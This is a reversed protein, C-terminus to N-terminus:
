IDEDALSQGLAYRTQEHDFGRYQMFRIQKSKEKADRAPTGFKKRWVENAIEYWDIEDTCIASNVEESSLGRQRLEEAVRRPGYGRASRQRAYSTAFREDSLLGDETLQGLAADIEAPEVGRAALKRKLESASHDRRALLNM